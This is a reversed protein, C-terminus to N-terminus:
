HPSLCTPPPPPAHHNGRHDLASNKSPPTSTSLPLPNPRIWHPPPSHMTPSAISKEPCGMPPRSCPRSLPTKSCPSSAAPSACVTNSTNPFSRASSVPSTSVCSSASTSHRTSPWPSAADSSPSTRRPPPVSPKRGRPDYLTLLRLDELVDNRLHHAEDFVLLPRQKLEVCLRTIEARIVHYANARNHVTSLGLEWAISKYMDMVHGTSLSVYFVRYLGAHLGSLLQRCATTKGSGAEGTLLGIGRLELLHQLRTNAEAGAAYGFLEDPQLNDHFPFRNFAFHKLYM